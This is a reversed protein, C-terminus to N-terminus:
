DVKIVIKGATKLNLLALYAEKFETWEFTRGIVPKINHKEVFACMDTLM